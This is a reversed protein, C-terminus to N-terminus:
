RQPLYKITGLVHDRIIAAVQEENRHKLARVLADHRADYGPVEKGAPCFWTDRVRGGNVPRANSGPRALPRQVPRTM